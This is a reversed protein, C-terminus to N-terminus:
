RRQTVEEFDMDSQIKKFFSCVGIHIYHLCISKIQCGMWCSWFSFRFASSCFLVASAERAEGGGETYFQRSVKSPLRSLM